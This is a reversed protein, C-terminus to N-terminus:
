TPSPVNASELTTPRIFNRLTQLSGRLRWIERLIDGGVKGVRSLGVQWPTFKERRLTQLIATDAIASQRVLQRKLSWREEGGPGLHSGLTVWESLFLGIYM